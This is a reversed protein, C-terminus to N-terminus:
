RTAAPAPASGSAAPSAPCRGNSDLTGNQQLERIMQEGRERGWQQGVKMGEAM